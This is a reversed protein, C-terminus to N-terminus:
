RGQAILERARQKIMEASSGLNAMVIVTYGEDLYMTLDASVGTFGGSHGVVRGAPSNEVFFGYGYNKSAIEPHATWLQKLSAESVLKGSRMAQDFRLLDPATSYGGGAPGGRIVHTYLNNIYEVKGEPTRTRVYGVALNHNSKDLDYCETATMGAPGTINKRVYEFYDMGSVKEIVAGALLMGTNSYKWQTGPEFQLTEDRTLPKFDAVKRFRARSSKDFTENFYSGLGSTHTLLHKIQVKDLVEQSCWTDDLHKALTDDLSLKGKEVLQMVSVATFMKNMSGLNFKTDITVPANFDRNAVGVAREVLVKGDKALLVTGSFADRAALKDAYAGLKEGLQSPSLQELKPLDSPPRARQFNLTTIRHPAEDEVELAVAHWSEALANRVILVAATSPRAPEYSRAGYVELAGSTQEMIARFFALHRDMPFAERFDPAFQKEVFAKFRAEDGATAILAFEQARAYAPTNPIDRTDTYKPQALAPASLLCFVLAVVAIWLPRLPSM